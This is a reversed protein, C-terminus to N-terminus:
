CLCSLYVSLCHTKDIYSLNSHSKGSVATRRLEVKFFANKNDKMFNKLDMQKKTKTEMDLVVSVNMEQVKESMIDFDRSERERRVCVFHVCSRLIETVACVIDYNRCAM